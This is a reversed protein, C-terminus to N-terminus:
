YKLRSSGCTFVQAFKNLSKGLPQLGNGFLALLRGFDKEVLALDIGATIGASTYVSGDKISLISGRSAARQFVSSFERSGAGILQRGGDM